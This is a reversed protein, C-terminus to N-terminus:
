NKFFRDYKDPNLSPYVDVFNAHSEKLKKRKEKSQVKIGERIKTLKDDSIFADRQMRRRYQYFKEQANSKHAGIHSRQSLPSTVFNLTIMENFQRISEHFM